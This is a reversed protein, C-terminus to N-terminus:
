MWIVPERGTLTSLGAMRGRKNTVVSGRLAVGTGPPLDAKLDKASRCSCGSIEALVWCCFGSAFKRSM